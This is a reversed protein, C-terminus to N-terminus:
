KRRIQPVTHNNARCTEEQKDVVVVVGSVLSLNIVAATVLGGVGEAGSVAFDRLVLLALNSLGETLGGPHKLIRQYITRVRSETM